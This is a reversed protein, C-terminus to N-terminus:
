SSASTYHGLARKFLLRAAIAFSASLGLAFAIARPSLVGLLAEAPFSTMVAIPLVVTFVVSLAGKMVSRPWRAFDFLANFMYALN